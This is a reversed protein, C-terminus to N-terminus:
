AQDNIVLIEPRVLLVGAGFWYDCWADIFRHDGEFEWMDQDNEVDYGQWLNREPTVFLRQSSGMGPMRVLKTTSGDIMIENMTDTDENNPHYGAAARYARRYMKFIADSCGMIMGDEDRRDLPYADDTAEVSAIINAPTLVGTAVPTLLPTPLAQDIAFQTLVGNFMDAATSGGANLVGTFLQQFEIQNKIKKSAKDMVYQTYPYDEAKQKTKVLYGRYNLLDAKPSFRIEATTLHTEIVIPHQSYTDADASFDLNFRKVIDQIQDWTVVHQGKLGIYPFFYKLSTAGALGLQMLADKFTRVYGQFATIDSNDYSNAM